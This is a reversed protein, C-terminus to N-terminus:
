AAQVLYPGDLVCERSIWGPAYAEPSVAGAARVTCGGAEGNKFKLQTCFNGNRTPAVWLEARYGSRTPIGIVRRAPFGLQHGFGGHPRGSTQLSTWERSIVQPSSEARNGTGKRAHGGDVSMLVLPVVLGIALLVVLGVSLTRRSM